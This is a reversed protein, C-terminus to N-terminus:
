IEEQIIQETGLEDLKEAPAGAGLTEIIALERDSLTWEIVDRQTVLKLEAARLEAAKADSLLYGCGYINTERGAGPWFPRVFNERSLGYQHAVWNAVADYIPEPTMCDDTTLKPKFKNVFGEYDEHRAKTSFAPARAAGQMDPAAPVDDFLRLQEAM